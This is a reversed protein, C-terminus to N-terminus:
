CKWYPMAPRPPPLPVPGPRGARDGALERVEAVIEVEPDGTARRLIAGLRISQREDIRDLRAKVAQRLKAIAALDPVNEGLLVDESPDASARDLLIADLTLLAVAEATDAEMEPRFRRLDRAVKKPDFPARIKVSVDCLMAPTLM